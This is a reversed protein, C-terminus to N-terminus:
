ETMLKSGGFSLVGVHGVSGARRGDIRAGPVQCADEILTLKYENAFEAIGKIPAMCGHLHSCIIARTSPTLASTLQDPDLVPRGVLTDVLVPGAGLTLVNAFNAKYDYAALIVEDGSHVNSARLALEVASTGSSCLHVHEVSYFEALATRLADCHPGHYRGWSGDAIMEEMALRVAADDVPWAWPSASHDISPNM